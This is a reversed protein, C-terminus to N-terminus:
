TALEVFGLFTFQPEWKRNPKAVVLFAPDDQVRVFFHLTGHAQHKTEKTFRAGGEGHHL